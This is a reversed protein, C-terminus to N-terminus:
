TRLLSFREPALFQDLVREGDGFALAGTEGGALNTYLEQLRRGYSALDYHRTIVGENHAIAQTEAEQFPPWATLEKRAEPNRSLHRLIEEQATEDLRGFDITQEGGGGQMAEWARNLGDPPLERGYAAFSEVLAKALRRTLGETDLWVLPVPLSEYLGPFHAESERFDSTIEPLDRGRLPRGFLAPELFALGFGEAVSTTAIAAARAMWQTFGTGPTQGVGFRIPLTLEKSLEVWRDHIPRWTPNDPILTTAALWGEPLLASLLLFEGLNKRRIARTPYLLLSVGPDLHAKLEEAVAEREPLTIAEGTSVPNPLLHVREYPIGADRLFGADRANLVAYAVRESHPYRQDAPTDGLVQYNAPRGDEAFDHIQLLLAHGRRALEEVLAPTLRNKGLTPNHIHWVDPLAGLVERAAAELEDALAKATVGGGDGYRMGPIERYAEDGEREGAEGALIALQVEKEALSAQANAVVRTVGGRKFHYHVVAVRM